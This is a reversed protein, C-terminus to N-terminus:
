GRLTTYNLNSITPIKIVKIPLEKLKVFPDQIRNFDAIIWFFDPRGYYYNALSDLTDTESITHSIYTATDDLQKTIGYMYRNDLTHYYYYVGTYRSIYDYSRTKKDKLVDM